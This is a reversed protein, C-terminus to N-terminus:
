LDGARGHKSLDRNPRESIPPPGKSRERVRAGATRLLDFPRTSERARDRMRARERAREARAEVDRDTERRRPHRVLREGSV